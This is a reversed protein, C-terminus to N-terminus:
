RSVLQRVTWHQAYLVADHVIGALGEAGQAGEAPAWRCARGGLTVPRGALVAEVEELLMEADDTATAGRATVYVAVNLARAYTASRAAPDPPTELLPGFVASPYGRPTGVYVAPFAADPNFAREEGAWTAVTPNGRLVAATLADLVDARADLRDDSM